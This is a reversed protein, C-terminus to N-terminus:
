LTKLYFEYRKWEVVLLWISTGPCVFVKRGFIAVDFRLAEVQFPRVCEIISFLHLSKRSMFSHIRLYVGIGGSLYFPFRSVSVSLSLSLSVFLVLLSAGILNKFRNAFSVCLVNMHWGNKPALSMSFYLSFSLRLLFHIPFQCFRKQCAHWLGSMCQCLRSLRAHIRISQTFSHSIPHLSKPLLILPMSCKWTSLNLENIYNQAVYVCYISM